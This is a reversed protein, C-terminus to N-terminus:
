EAKVCIKFVADELVVPPPQGTTKLKVDAASLIEFAMFLDQKSYNKSRLFQQFVPYPNNPNKVVILDTAPKKKKKTDQLDFNGKVAEQYFSIKEILEEDYKVIAPIVKQRFQDYSTGPHWSSGYKSEQFDKIVLMKRIQNIMATLVQLYHYGSSLLSPMYHLTKLTDRESLAGTLEYIPDQRTRILVAQVDDATIMDRDKAYDVLKELNANFARLDFGTMKFILDFAKSDIQKNQKRLLQRTHQQLFRRQADIDAKRNGKPIACDIVTGFKKITKYLAKRKDVTDTTIFLFNNKPFGKEIANKLRQADDGSEPVSLKREICYSCLKKIWEIEGAQDESINFKDAIAADSIAGSIDSSMDSSMDDSIDPLRIQLRSLLNLFRKSAKEFDNKEFLQKVKELVNGQNHSAVFVTADRLEMIKKESFFSYTNMREIVEALQNEEKHNIVEFNHKQHAPDPIIAKVLSQTIQHYLFEEGYILYVPDFSSNLREHIYEKVSQYNIEPM